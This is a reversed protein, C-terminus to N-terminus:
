PITVSEGGARTGLAGMLVDDNGISFNLFRVSGDGFAFHAGGTHPAWFHAQDCNDDMRGPGFRYKTANCTYGGNFATALALPYRKDITGLVVDGTGNQSPSYSPEYYGAGQFWWGFVYDNSPPREGIMLTNSTGDFVQTMLVKANCLMGDNQNMATGRVGLMGTFTVKYGDSPFDYVRPQRSDAQCQWIKMPTELGPNGYAWPWLYNSGTQDWKDSLTYLNQQEVYPLIQAMWSWFWHKQGYTYTELAMPLNNKADHFSHVAIAVNHLNNQCQTKAAADRVKQVAPLLLGILIAIIAIVVLLEILTFGRRPNRAPAPM